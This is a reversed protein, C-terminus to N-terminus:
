IRAVSEVRIQSTHAAFSAALVCAVSRSSSLLLRCCCGLSALSALLPHLTRDSAEGVPPLCYVVSPPTTYHLPILPPALLSTSHVASSHLATSHLSIFPCPKFVGKVIM